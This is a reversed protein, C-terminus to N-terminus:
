PNAGQGHSRLYALLDRVEQDTLGTTGEGQFAPMATDARGNIITRVIFDDSATKQFVPNSLTPAVKGGMHCGACLQTFLEGGRGAQGGGLTPPVPRLEQPPRGDGAHLYDVLKAVQEESLGGASKNWAPMLTGPGAGVPLCAM